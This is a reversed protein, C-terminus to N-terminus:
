LCSTVDCPCRFHVFVHCLGRRCTFILMRSLRGLHAPNWILYTTLWPFLIRFHNELARSELNQMESLWLLSHFTEWFATQGLDAHVCSYKMEDSWGAGMEATLRPKKWRGEAKGGQTKKWGLMDTVGWVNRWRRDVFVGVDLLLPSFYFPIFYSVSNHLSSELPQLFTSGLLVDTYLFVCMCVFVCHEEGLFVGQPPDGKAYSIKKKQVIKFSANHRVLCM